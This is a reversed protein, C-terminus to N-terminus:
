FEPRAYKLTHLEVLLKHFRKPDVPNQILLRLMDGVVKSLGGPQTVYALYQCQLFKPLQGIIKEDDAM